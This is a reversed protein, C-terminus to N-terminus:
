DNREAYEKLARNMMEYGAEIADLSAFPIAFGSFLETHLLRTSSETEATLQFVHEGHFIGKIGGGWTLEELPKLRMVRPTIEVTEGNPKHILVDLRSGLTMDGVVSVHYPNWEPYTQNDILIRWVRDVPADILISTHIHKEPVASCGALTIGLLLTAWSM